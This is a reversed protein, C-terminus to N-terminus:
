DDADADADISRCYIAAHGGVAPVRGHGPREGDSEALWQYPDAVACTDMETCSSQDINTYHGLIPYSFSSASTQKPLWVLGLSAVPRILM